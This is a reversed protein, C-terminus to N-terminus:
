CWAFEEAAKESVIEDESWPKTSFNDRGANFMSGQVTFKSKMESKPMTWKVSPAEAIETGFRDETHNGILVGTWYPNM